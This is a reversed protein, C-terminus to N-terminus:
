DEILTGMPRLHVKRKKGTKPDHIEYYRSEFFQQEGDLIGDTPELKTGLFEIHKSRTQRTVESLAEENSRIGLPGRHSPQLPIRVGYDKQHLFGGVIKGLDPSM